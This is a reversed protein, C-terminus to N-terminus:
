NEYGPMPNLDKTPDVELIVEEPTAPKEEM